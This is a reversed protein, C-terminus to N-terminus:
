FLESKESPAATRTQKLMWWIIGLGILFTLLFLILPSWQVNVEVKSVDFFSGTELDQIWQRSVANLALVLFQCVVAAVAPLKRVRKFQVAILMWVGLPSLATLMMLIFLNFNLSIQQRITEPLTGLIYWCGTLYFIFVGITYLLVAFRGIGTRYQDADRSVFFAADIVMYVSVTTVALGFMMLWRPWIEPDGTNLALGYPSGGVSASMFIGSWRFPNSMLSFNNVFLFGIILFLIAGVWGATRGLRNLADKRLQVAYIYVCYYAVILFGIVSIWPWAILIGAPYYFQPYVVQTFLLPVIGFNIGLAVIVPMANGLRRTARLSTSKNFLGTLMIIILGAFLLHMPVMHLTFGLVKFFELFWLPAPYGLPNVPGILSNPDMNSM